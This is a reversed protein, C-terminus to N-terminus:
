LKYEVIFLISVIARNCISLFAELDLKQARTLACISEDAELRDDPEQNEHKRVELSRYSIEALDM